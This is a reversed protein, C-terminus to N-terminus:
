RITRRPDCVLSLPDCVQHSETCEYKTRFTGAVVGGLEEGTLDVLTDKKLTLRRM